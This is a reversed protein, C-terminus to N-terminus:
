SAWAGSASTSPRVGTTTSRPTATPFSWRRSPCAPLRHRPCRRPRRLRGPLHGTGRPLQLGAADVLEALAARHGRRHLLRGRAPHHAPAQPRASSAPGSGRSTSARCTRSVRPRRGGRDPAAGHHEHRRHVQARLGPPRLPQRRPGRPALHRVLGAAPGAVAGADAGQRLDVRRDAGAVHRHHGSDALAAVVDPHARMAEDVRAVRRRHLEPVCRARHTWSVSRTVTWTSSRRTPRTTRATGCCPWRRVDSRTAPSALGERRGETAGDARDLRVALLRRGGPGAAPDGRDAPVRRREPTRTSAEGHNARGGGARARCRGLGEGHLWEQAQRALM